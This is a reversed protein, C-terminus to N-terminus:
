EKMGKLDKFKLRKGYRLVSKTYFGATVKVVVAATAILIALSIIAETYSFDSNLLKFPVIFPSSLPLYFAITGILGGPDIIAVFYGIYFSVMSTMTVPMMAAGLDEMKDVLAGAAANLFAFLTFGFIFYLLVLIASAATFSSLSLPMGMVTFDDPVLLQYGIAATILFASLQTLGLAGTGLCKGILVHSPKTSVILTEMVRSAKESAVSLAVSYGYYYISFFMIMLIAIGVVYGSLDMSGMFKVESTISSQSFAIMDDSVGQTKMVSSIYLPSIAESITNVDLGSMFSKTMLVIHPANDKMELIVMANNSDKKIKDEYESILDESAVEVSTGSFMQTLVDQVGPIAGDTNDLVYLTKSEESDSFLDANEVQEAVMPVFCAGIILVLGIITTIIFAKKRLAEKFTFKFVTLISKM